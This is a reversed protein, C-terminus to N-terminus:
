STEESSLWAAAGDARSVQSTHQGLIPAPSVESPAVWSSFAYPRAPPSFTRGGVDFPGAFLGRRIFQPEDVVEGMRLVPALAIGHRRALAFLEARTHHALWGTLHRDAEDASERAIVHPDSFRAQTSWAPEGLAARITDWDRQTRGILVVYGDRCPLLTYPYAGGSGSARRGARAFPKDFPLYMRANIDAFAAVVETTSIDVARGGRGRTAGFLAALGAAAANTGAEYDALDFPLTLPARGPAGIAWSTGGLASATLACGPLDSYPGHEGLPTIAVAVLTPHAALMRDLDLGLERRRTVSWNTVLMTAAGLLQDLRRRDTPEDPDLVVSRKGFNLAHFLGSHELHPEGPFPGHRRSCDGDPPEVKVVDAGLDSLLRAAYPASIHEGLEIVRCGLLPARDSSQATM